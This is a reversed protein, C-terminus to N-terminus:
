QQCQQEKKRYGNWAVWGVLRVGLYIVWYVVFSTQLAVMGEFLTQDAQLRTVWPTVMGPNQYLDDHIVAAKGYAGTPPLINWLLKPISAFDTVFGPQVRVIRELVESAFDFEATVKWNRGDLYEVELPDLFSVHGTM